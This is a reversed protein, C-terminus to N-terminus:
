DVRSFPANCCIEDVGWKSLLFRHFDERKQEWGKQVSCVKQIQETGYVEQGSSRVIGLDWSRQINRVFGREILVHHSSARHRASSQPAQMEWERMEESQLVELM